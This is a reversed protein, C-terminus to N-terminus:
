RRQEFEFEKILKALKLNSSVPEGALLKDFDPVRTKTIFLHAPNKKKPAGITKNKGNAIWVFGNNESQKPDGKRNGAASVIVCCEGADHGCKSIVFFGVCAEGRRFM